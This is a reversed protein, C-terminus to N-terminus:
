AKWLVKKLHTRLLDFDRSKRSQIQEATYRTGDHLDAMYGPPKQQTWFKLTKQKYEELSCIPVAPCGGVVTNPPVDKTVVAGAAVISNPGIRVDPMIIARIGIFCNDLIDITGFKQLSPQEETFVWTGGDHTVFCVEPAITCHNGIRVLFPESGFSRVLIRCDQGIQAGQERFYEAITYDTYRSLRYRAVFRRVLNSIRRIM